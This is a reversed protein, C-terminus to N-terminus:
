GGGAALTGGAVLHGRVGVVITGAVSPSADDIVSARAGDLVVEYGKPSGPM